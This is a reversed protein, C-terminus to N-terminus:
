ASPEEANIVKIDFPIDIIHSYDQGSELIEEDYEDYYWNITVNGGNTQIKKLLRLIDLICKSSSTNFYELQFDVETHALPSSVYNDLKELFPTFFEISNEPISRGKVLLYGETSNFEITPTEPTGEIFFDNM